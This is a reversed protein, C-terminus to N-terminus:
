QELIRHNWPAWDFAYPGNGRIVEVAQGLVFLQPAQYM